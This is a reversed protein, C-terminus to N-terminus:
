ILGTPSSGAAITALLTPARGRELSRHLSRRRRIGSASGPAGDAAVLQPGLANVIEM